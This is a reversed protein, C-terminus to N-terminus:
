LQIRAFNPNYNFTYFMTDDAFLAISAGRALVPIYNTYILYLTPALCSGQPVGALVARPSSLQDEIRVCFSRNSLFSSITKIIWPPINLTSMKYILGDHWVRDFAKEIDLFVSATHINSNLNNCIHDIFKVLQQTTSHERRFASQEPRIKDTLHKQLESLIVKEYIKSISSLLAIPRYSDPKLPDKGPKPISIITARKWATPFYCLKLCGNLINTLTLVMNKPLLRLATNTITDAGPAKNKPLKSLLSAIRGPSSFTNHSPSEISSYPTYAAVEPLFQGPNPTFQLALSDAILEAKEIATVPLPVKILASDLVDPRYSQNYPHHTPSTPVIVAYDNQRVHNYLTSGSTNSTRSNWMSHKANFDGASISWVSSQTLTDCNQSGHGFRQCTHCQSPGTKRYHEVVIKLYFLETLEFINKSQTDTLIVLCIPMPKHATGFRRIMQVEFNHAILENKLDDDSIETPIGKLVVKLQRDAAITHTHCGINNTLLIKQIQRFQTVNSSKLYIKGDASSKASIGVSDADPNQFILPAANRWLSAPIIIPPPLPIKSKDSQTAINFNSTNMGSKPSPPSVIDSNESDLQSNIDPSVYSDGSLSEIDSPEPSTSEPRQQPTTPLLLPTPSSATNCAKKSNILPPTGKRKSGARRGGM